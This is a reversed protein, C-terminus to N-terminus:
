KYLRVIRRGRSLAFEDPHHHKGFGNFVAQVITYPNKGKTLIKATCNKIGVCEFISRVLRSARLGNPRNGPSRMLVQLSNHKGIIDHYLSGDPSFDIPVLDREAKRLANTLADKVEDGRGIGFGGAGMQNGCVVLARYSGIKGAATQNSVKGVHIVRSVIQPKNDRSIRQRREEENAAKAQRKKGDRPGRRQQRKQKPKRPADSLEHVLGFSQYGQVQSRCRLRFGHSATNVCSIAARGRFM